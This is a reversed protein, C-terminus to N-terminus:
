KSADTVMLENWPYSFMSQVLNYQNHSMFFRDACNGTTTKVEILYEPESGTWIIDLYGLRILLRTLRSGTDRYVIDSTEREDWSRMGRYNPHVTVLHRITSRWNGRGFHPELANLLM